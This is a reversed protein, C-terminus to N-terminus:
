KRSCRLTLWMLVFQVPLSDNLGFRERFEFCREATAKEGLMIYCPDGPILRQLSFTVLLIGLLVPILLLIRRGIFQAM